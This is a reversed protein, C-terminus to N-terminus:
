FFFLLYYFPPNSKGKKNSEINIYLTIYSKFLLSELYLLLITM